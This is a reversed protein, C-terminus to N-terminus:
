TKIKILIFKQTVLEGTILLKGDNRGGHMNNDSVGYGSVTMGGETSIASAMV